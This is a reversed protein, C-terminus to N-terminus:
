EVLKMQVIGLALVNSGFSFMRVADNPLPIRFRIIKDYGIPDWEAILIPLLMDCEERSVPLILRWHCKNGFCTILVDVLHILFSSSALLRNSDRM